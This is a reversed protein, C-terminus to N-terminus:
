KKGSKEDSPTPMRHHHRHHIMFHKRSYDGTLWVYDAMEKSIATRGALPYLMITAMNVPIRGSVRKPIGFKNIIHGNGTFVLMRKKNNKLFRSINEAMTDEWVCQAQYFYEFNKLDTHVHEKYVKRLYDRHRENELDISGALQSREDTSLSNLGSRAIKKVINEPANIALVRGGKEKAELLLPRYFHYDFGWRKKWKVDELFEGENITGEIYRDVDKQHTEQFFEMAVTLTGCQATLAQLIQVEILHHDPNSHVEGVFIVGRSGLADILQDFSIVEGTNLNVIQGAHFHGSVGEIDALPSMVPKLASCGGIVFSSISVLIVVFFYRIRNCEV